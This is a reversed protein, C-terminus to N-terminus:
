DKIVLENQVQRVGDVSHAAHEANQRTAQSNVEGSLTVQGQKVAVQIKSGQALPDDKLLQLVDRKIRNSDKFHEFYYGGERLDYGESTEVRREDWDSQHNFSLRDISQPQITQAKAAQQTM